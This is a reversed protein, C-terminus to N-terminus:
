FATVVRPYSYFVLVIDLPEGRGDRGGPSPV